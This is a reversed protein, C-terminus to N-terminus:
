THKVYITVNRAKNSALFVFVPKKREPCDVYKEKFALIIGSM